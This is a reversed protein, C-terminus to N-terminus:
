HACAIASASLTWTVADFIGFSVPWTGNVQQGGTCSSVPNVTFLVPPSPLQGTAYDMGNGSTVQAYAANQVVFHLEMYEIMVVGVGFLGLIMLLMVPAIIAFEVAVAGRDGLMSLTEAGFARLRRGFLGLTNTGPHGRAM